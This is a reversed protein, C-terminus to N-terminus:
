KCKQEDCARRLIVARMMLSSTYRRAYGATGCCAFRRQQVTLNMRPNPRLRM